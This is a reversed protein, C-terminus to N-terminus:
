VCPIPTDDGSGLTAVEDFVEGRADALADGLMEINWKVLINGVTMGLLADTGDEREVHQGTLRVADDEVIEDGCTGGEFGHAIEEELVVLITHEECADVVFQLAWVM